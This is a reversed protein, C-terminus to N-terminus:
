ATETMGYRELLTVKFRQQVGEFLDDAAQRLRLDDTARPESRLAAKPPGTCAGTFPPCAWSATFRRSELLALVRDADFRPLMVVAAGARLAGHLAVTLGHM